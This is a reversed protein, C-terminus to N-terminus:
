IPPFINLALCRAHKICAQTGVNRPTKNMKSSRRLPLSTPQRRAIQTGLGARPPMFEMDQEM